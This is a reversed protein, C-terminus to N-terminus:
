WMKQPSHNPPHSPLCLHPPPQCVLPARAARARARREGCAGGLKEGQMTALFNAMDDPHEFEIVGVFEGTTTNRKADAFTIVGSHSRSLLSHPARPSFSPLPARACAPCRARARSPAGRAEGARVKQV